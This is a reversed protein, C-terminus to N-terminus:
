TDALTVTLQGQYTGSAVGSANISMVPTANYQGNVTVGTGPVSAVTPTLAALIASQLGSIDALPVGLTQSVQTMVNSASLWGDSILTTATTPSGLSNVVSTVDSLLGTANASGNEVDISTASSGTVGCSAGSPDAAPNTFAGGSASSIAIPLDTNAGSLVTGILEGTHGGALQAETLAQSTATVPMNTINASSLGLAGLLVSGLISTLNGSLTISPTAAGSIGTAELLGSPSSLSIDTSPIKQSCNYTGASYGYLNSMTATVSFGTQTYNTDTVAAEFSNAGQSLDLSSLAQGSSNYLALTRGGPGSGSTQTYTILASGSSAARAPTGASAAAGVLAAGLVVGAVLKKGMFPPDAILGSGEM